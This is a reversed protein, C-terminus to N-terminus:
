VSNSAPVAVSSTRKPFTHSSVRLKSNSTTNISKPMETVSSSTSVASAVIPAQYQTPPAMKAATTLSAKSLPVPM